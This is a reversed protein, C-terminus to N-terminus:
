RFKANGNKCSIFGSVTYKGGLLPTNKSRGNETNVVLDSKSLNGIAVNTNGNKCTINLTIDCKADSDVDVNGNKCYINLNQFSASLSINGNKGEIKIDQAYVASMVDVCANESEISLKGYFDIPIEVDLTLGVDADVLIPNKISISSSDICNIVSTDNSILNAWVRIEGGLRSISLAIDGDTIAAGHLHASINKSSCASVKVNVDSNITVRRISDVSESQIEDFEKMGSLDCPIGIVRGNAIIINGYYIKGNMIIM